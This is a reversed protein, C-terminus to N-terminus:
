LRCCCRLYREEVANWDLCCRMAHVYAQASDYQPLWAHEWLDIALLPCGDPECPRNFLLTRELCLTHDRRLMLWLFGPADSESALREAADWFCDVSGFCEAVTDAARGKPESKRRFGAFYLEHAYVSGALRRVRKWRVGSLDCYLGALTYRCLQPCDTIAANLRELQVLYLAEHRAKIETCLCSCDPFGRVPQFPYKRPLM